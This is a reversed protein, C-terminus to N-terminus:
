QAGQCHPTAQCIHTLNVNVQGLIEAIHAGILAIIVVAIIFYITLLFVQAGSVNNM